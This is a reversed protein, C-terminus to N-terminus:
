RAHSWIIEQLCVRHATRPMQPRREPPADRQHLAELATERSDRQRFENAVRRSAEAFDGYAGVVDNSLRGSLRGKAGKSAIQDSVDIGRASSTSPTGCWEIGELSFSPEGDSAAM